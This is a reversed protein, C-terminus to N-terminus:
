ASALALAIPIQILLSYVATELRMELTMGAVSATDNGPIRTLLWLNPTLNERTISM